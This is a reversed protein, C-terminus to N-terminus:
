MSDNFSKGLLRAQIDTGGGAGFPVIIRVPKTPWNPAHVSGAAAIGLAVAAPVVAMKWGSM